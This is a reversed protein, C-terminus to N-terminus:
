IIRLLRRVEKPLKLFSDQYFTFIPDCKNEFCSFIIRVGNERCATLRHELKQDIWNLM